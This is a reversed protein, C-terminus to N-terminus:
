VSPSVIESISVYVLEEEVPDDATFNIRLFSSPAVFDFIHAAMSGAAAADVDPLDYWTPDPKNQFQLKFATKVNSIVLM